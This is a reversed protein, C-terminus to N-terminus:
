IYRVEYFVWNRRDNGSKANHDKISKYSKKLSRLKASCQTGSVNHHSKESVTQAIKDWTKKQPCKGNYLQEEMSRYIELLCLVTPESWRYSGSNLLIFKHNITENLNDMVLYTM